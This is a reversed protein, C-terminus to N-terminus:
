GKENISAVYLRKWDDIRSDGWFYLMVAPGLLLAALIKWWLGPTLFLLAFWGVFLAMGVTQWLRELRRYRPLRPYVRDPRVRGLRDWAISQLEPMNRYAASFAAFPEGLGDWGVTSSAEQQFSLRHGQLADLATQMERKVPEASGYLSTYEALNLLFPTAPPIQQALYALWDDYLLFLGPQVRLFYAGHSQAAKLAQARELPLGPVVAEGTATFLSDLYAFLAAQDYVLLLWFLPLSSSGHFLVRDEGGPVQVSLYVRNGM